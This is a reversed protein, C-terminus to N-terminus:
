TRKDIHSSDGARLDTGVCEPIMDQPLIRSATNYKRHDSGNLAAIKDSRRGDTLMQAFGDRDYGVSM